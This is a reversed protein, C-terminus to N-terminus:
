FFNIKIKIFFCFYFLFCFLFFINGALYKANNLELLNLKTKQTMNAKSPSSQASFPISNFSHNQNQNSKNQYQLQSQSQQQQQLNPTNPSSISPFPSFSDVSHLNSNVTQNFSNNNNGINNNNQQQQHHSPKNKRTGAPRMALDAISATKRPDYTDGNLSITRSQQLGDLHITSPEGVLNWIEFGQVKKSDNLASTNSNDQYSVKTPWKYNMIYGSNTSSYFDRLYTMCANEEEKKNEIAVREAWYIEEEEWLKQMNETKCYLEHAASYVEEKSMLSIENSKDKSEKDLGWFKDTQTQEKEAQLMESNEYTSVEFSNLGIHAGSLKAFSKGHTLSTKRARIRNGRKFQENSDNEKLVQETFLADFDVRFDSM